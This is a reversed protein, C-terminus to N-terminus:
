RRRECANGIGDADDDLQAPNATRPCNDLADSIGDADADAAIIRSFSVPSHQITSGPRAVIRRGFFAGRHGPASVSALQIEGNPAVITGTFAMEVNVTGTGLTGVLLQTASGTRQELAGRLTVSGSTYLAIPGSRSDLSLRAQPELMISTFTYQGSSLALQARSRLVMDGYNGPALTRTQDPELTVSGSHRVPLCVEWAALNTPSVSTRERITGTVITGNGRTVSGETIISGQVRARDRLQVAGHAFLSGTSADVGVELAGTGLNASTPAPLPAPATLQVRDNLTLAETAGLMVGPATMGPPLEIIFAQECAALSQGRDELEIFGTDEAIGGCSMLLPLGLACFRNVFKVHM